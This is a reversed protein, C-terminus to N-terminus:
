ESQGEKMDNRDQRTFGERDREYLVNSGTINKEEDSGTIAM